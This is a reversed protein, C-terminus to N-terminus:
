MFAPVTRVEVLRARERGQHLFRDALGLDGATGEVFWTSGSGALLPVRGSARAFAEKWQALRGDVRLAATELENSGDVDGAPRRSSAMQDWARYVAATDMGFPLLLLIFAREEYPLSEVEEGVGRVMARGGTLCFPVDAGLSAAVGLDHCGAWRLVAAADASGGGLGAGPPVRKVLEIDARRGVARLARSVLNDPGAPVSREGAGDGEGRPASSGVSAVTVALRDGERVTLTDALDIAVMESELRHFGDPRVGVIRLSLTLKAPARIEVPSGVDTPPCGDADANV